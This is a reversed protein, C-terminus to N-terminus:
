HGIKCNPLAEQLDKVGADTVHTNWLTLSQLRRLGKLCELGADTVNTSGLDLRKLATLGELHKLGADGINTRWLFLEHLETMGKIHELGADTIGCERLDLSTLKSLDKIHVLGADTIKTGSLTLMQLQTLENIHELGADSGLKPGSEHLSFWVGTVESFFNDGLVNRLWIPGSPRASPIEKSSAAIRYDYDYVVAGNDEFISEVAEREKRKREVRHTLWASAVACILTFILLTRLSFQFWRRQRKPPEAKSPETQMAANDAPAPLPLM